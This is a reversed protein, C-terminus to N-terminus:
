TTRTELFMGIVPYRSLTQSLAFTATAPLPLASSQTLLGLAACYPAAPTLGVFNDTGNSSVLALYYVGPGIPTDTCDWLVETNAAPKATTGRAIIRTGDPRYLGIDYDGGGSANSAFWLTRVTVAHLVVVPVFVAESATLVFSTSASAQPAIPGANMTDISHWHQVGPGRTYSV